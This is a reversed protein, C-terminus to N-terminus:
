GVSGELMRESSDLGVVLIMSWILQREFVNANKLM